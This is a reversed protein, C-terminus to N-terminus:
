RQAFTWRGTGEFDGSAVLAFGHPPRSEVVEFEWRLTYPLRGKTLLRVRRGVGGPGTPPRLEEVKLYVSPWWRPLDLPDGLVDSVEECSAQVNWRTVFHYDNTRSDPM